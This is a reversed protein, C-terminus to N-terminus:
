ANGREEEVAATKETDSTPSSETSLEARGNGTALAVLRSLAKRERTVERVRAVTNPNALALREVSESESAGAAARKVEDEVEQQEVEIQEADAFADLALSRRVRTEAEGRVEQRLSDADKGTLRLYQELQLGQQEVSRTFSELMHEAQHDILQPPFEVTSIEVLKDLAAEELQQRLREEERERLQGEITTRLAALDTYEGVQQAFEDNIEPLERAKVWHLKVTFEVPQGALEKDRYEDALPLVFRNEQGGSLGVLQDAFGPAPQPGDPDVVYEADKSDLLQRDTGQLVGRLDIGVRDSLQVSREVPVWQAHSERLRQIVSDIQESAIRAQEAPVRLQKKYDGLEVRPPLPVTAKVRLPELDVSEVRPRAYPDVGEQKIAENVVDPVLRELADEVIRDRGIVREIMSRPAKGRRFGPVDVRNALRRYADEIARQLREQEVEIALSVQRPAVETSSVKVM